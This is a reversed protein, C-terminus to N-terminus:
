GGASLNHFHVGSARVKQKTVKIKDYIFQDFLVFHGRCPFLYIILAFLVILFVVWPSLSHFNSWYSSNFFNSM